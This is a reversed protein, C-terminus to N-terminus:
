LLAVACVLISLPYALGSTVAVGLDFPKIGKPSIAFFHCILLPNTKFYFGEFNLQPHGLMEIKSGVRM